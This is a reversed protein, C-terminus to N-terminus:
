RKNLYPNTEGCNGCFVADDELELGCKICFMKKKMSPDALVDAQTTETEGEVATPPILQSSDGAGKKSSRPFGFASTRMRQRAREIIEPPIKDLALLARRLYWFGLVVLILRGMDLFNLIYYYIQYGDAIELGEATEILIQDLPIITILVIYVLNFLYGIPLSLQGRYINRKENVFGDLVGRLLFFGGVFGILSITSVGQIILSTTASVPFVQLNILGGVISFAIGIVSAVSIAITSYLINKNQEDKYFTYLGYCLWMIAFQSLFDIILIILFKNAFTFFVIFMGVMLLLVIGLTSNSIHKRSTDSIM